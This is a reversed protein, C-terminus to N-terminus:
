INAEKIARASFIVAILALAPLMLAFSITTLQATWAIITKCFFTLTTNIAGIRGLVVSGPAKSRKNAADLMTPALFSAGLGAIFVGLCFITFGLNPSTRSLMTGLTTLIIFSVGGIIVCQKILVDIAFRNTLRHVTLRGAIMALAFLVYPIAAAGASVHLEEKSFIAGWDAIAFELLTASTIGLTINWDIEFKTFLHKISSQTSSDVVGPMLSGRMRWLCYLILLFVTISVSDVHRVLDVKGTLFGSFIATSLAGASWLGHLRPILNDGTKEQEHFAQGNVAIHFASTAAGILIVCILFQWAQTTRVVSSIAIFLVVSSVTMAKRSGFRHALHGATLLSVLSGIAGLSLLTGFEGNSVHLNQKVEPFRPVWSVIGVAYLFFLAALAKREPTKM